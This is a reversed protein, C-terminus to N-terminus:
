VVFKEELINANLIEHSVYKTDVNKRDEQLLMVLCSSSMFKGSLRGFIAGASM